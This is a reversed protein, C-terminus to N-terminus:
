FRHHQLWLAFLEREEPYNTDLAYQDADHSKQISAPYWESIFNRVWGVILSADTDKNFFRVHKHITTGLAGKKLESLLTAKSKPIPATLIEMVREALSEATFIEGQLGALLVQLVEGRFRDDDLATSEM